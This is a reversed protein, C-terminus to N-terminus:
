PSVRGFENFAGSTLPFLRTFEREYAEAVMEIERQPYSPFMSDVTKMRLSLFSMLSRTNMTVFCSSYINVPLCMRAVEKAVGHELMVSYREYADHAADALTMRVRRATAEDPVYSYHGPKGVQKMGRDVDPLYFEPELEM